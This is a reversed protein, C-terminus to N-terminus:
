GLWRVVAKKWWEGPKDVKGYRQHILERFYIMNELDSDIANPLGPIGHVFRIPSCVLDGSDCMVGVRKSVKELDEATKTSIYNNSPSSNRWNRLEAWLAFFGPIQTGVIACLSKTLPNRDCFLSIDNRFIGSTQHDNNFAVLFKKDTSRNFLPDAILMVGELKTKNFNFALTKAMLAGQSYGAILIKAGSCRQLYNTLVVSTANSAIQTELAITKIYTAAKTVTRLTPAPTAAYLSGPGLAAADSVGV